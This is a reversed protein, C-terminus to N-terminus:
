WGFAAELLVVAAGSRATTRIAAQVAAHVSLSSDDRTVMGLRVLDDLLRALANDDRAATALEPPLHEINERLLRIPIEHPALYALLEVLALIAPSRQRADEVATALISELRQSPRTSPDAALQRQLVELAVGRDRALAAALKVALPHGDLWSALEDAGTADTRGSARLLLDISEERAISGLVLKKGADRWDSGRSTVLVHGRLPRPMYPGVVDVGAAEDFIVLWRDHTTLWALAATVEADHDSIGPAILGLERSLLALDLRIMSETQSRVLWVVDYADQQRYAHQLTLSTKGIGAAGIVILPEGPAGQRPAALATRIASLEFKRGVFESSGLLSVNAIRREPRKITPDSAPAAAEMLDTRSPLAPAPEGTAGLQRLLQPLQEPLYVAHVSRLALPVFQSAGDELLVPVVREPRQMAIGGIMEAEEPNGDRGKGEFSRRYRDTCIALVFDAAGIEHRRWEASPRQAFADLRADVGERRLQQAFAQVRARHEESDATYSIFVRKM